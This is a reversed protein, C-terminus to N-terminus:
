GATFNMLGDISTATAAHNKNTHSRTQAGKYDRSPKNEFKPKLEPHLIWCRDILHGINNCHLCKLDPRKGKYVRDGSSKHNTVFARAESVSSKIDVNMVKRRVEERQITTCISAFSPLKPNMLIHSRLDEYESGLSALLHFIKDEESRKLLIAANITHPRYMDLENWMNKMCGLHHVFSKDGQQLSALNRKLQFVRAANNQNGYMDKVAKWLSLSSESFDPSSDEPAEITGNVFGLKSRGGLALTVARSWPLYNFENLLVSCLRQNPNVEAEPFRSPPATFSEVESGFLNEEAM